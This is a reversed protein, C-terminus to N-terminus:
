IAGVYPDALSYGFKEAPSNQLPFIEEIESRDKSYEQQWLSFYKSNHNVISEQATFRELDVLDCIRDLYVQPTEVFDEYRIIIYDKIYPLDMLMVSYAVHWHLLLEVITANTWKKTALAVAIPHRVIFVFRTHPFLAQLFRSSVLNPPSKELLVKKSLDYYAGWECLLKDRNEPMIIESSETLHSHLDFAFRGPGGYKLAPPFITQLHQGEDGGVGTDEFGSTSPHERLLRHLISTGSRHLGAIFLFQNDEIYPVKILPSRAKYSRKFAGVKKKLLTKIM